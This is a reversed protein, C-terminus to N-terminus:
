NDDDEELKDKLIGVYEMFQPSEGYFGSPTYIESATGVVKGEADTRILTLIITDM